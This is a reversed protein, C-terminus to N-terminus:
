KNLFELTKIKRKDFGSGAMLIKGTRKRPLIKDQLLSAFYVLHVNQEPSDTECAYQFQSLYTHLLADSTLSTRNWSDM